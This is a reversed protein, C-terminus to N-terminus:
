PESTAHTRALADRLEHATFPKLLWADAGARKALFTDASRDLLMIIPAEPWGQALVASKIARTIAMGGMSGVQLDVLVVDPTLEHYRDAARRPKSLEELMAGAPLAARVQNRVWSADAVLLVKMESRSYDGPRGAEASLEGRTGLM